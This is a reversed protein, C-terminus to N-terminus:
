HDNDPAEGALVLARRREYEVASIVGLGPYLGREDSSFGVAFSAATDELGVWDVLVHQLIPERIVGPHGRWQRDCLPPPDNIGTVLDDDNTEGLYEVHLGESLQAVNLINPYGM